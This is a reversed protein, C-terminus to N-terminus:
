EYAEEITLRNAKEKLGNAAKYYFAAMLYNGEEVLRIAKTILHESEHVLKEFM